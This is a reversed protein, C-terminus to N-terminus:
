DGTGKAKLSAFAADTGGGRCHQESRSTAGSKGPLIAEARKALAKARRHNWHRDAVCLTLRLKESRAVAAEEGARGCKPKSATTTPSVGRPRRRVGGRGGSIVNRNTGANAVTWNM